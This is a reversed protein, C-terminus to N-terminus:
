GYASFTSSDVRKLIIEDQIMGKWKEPLLLVYTEMSKSSPIEDQIMKDEKRRRRWEKV